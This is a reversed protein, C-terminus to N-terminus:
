LLNKVLYKELSLLGKFTFVNDLLVDNYNISQFFPYTNHYCATVTLRLFNEEFVM